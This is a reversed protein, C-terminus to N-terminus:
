AGTSGSPENLSCTGASVGIASDIMSLLPRPMWVWVLQIWTRGPSRRVQSPQWLGRRPAESFEPTTTLVMGAARTADSAPSWWDPSVMAEVRVRWFAASSFRDASMLKVSTQASVVWVPTVARGAM